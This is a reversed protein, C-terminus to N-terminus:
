YRFEVASKGAPVEVARLTYDARYIKTDKGNVQAKWGPYYNDSLFLMAPTNTQVEIHIMNPTYSTINASGSGEKQFSITPKEELLLTHRFDFDKSYLRKIMSNKDPIVEYNYFLTARGLAQTNRYLEFKDDRYILQNRQADVWVPYAWGQNTDARPHFIVSVGLLDLVRDIYKGDRPLKVLSREGKVFSGTQSSRIFEGYRDIYLPDYGEIGPIGYYVTVEGGLNGFVREVGKTEKQMASIVPIDPYVLDRPDFPMWKQAFRLSDFSATLLLFASLLFMLKKNKLSIFLFTSALLLFVSPLILNRKAIVLKDISLPHWIFLIIWTIGIIIGSIVFPILMKKVEKKEILRELVDFGFAALVAAAFSFLVIIRSLASTSVVPIKLSIIILSLPTYIALIIAVFALLAFFTVKSGRKLVAFIMLLFPIIGIFSAWEAYHGYWDNRTVANGFFDPAIATILYQPPIVETLLFIESRVSNKYFELSPLLQPLSFLIGLVVSLGLFIITQTNKVLLGRYFAYATTAVFFYLSIQFHGSFFSLPFTFSLLLLYKLKKTHVYQEIAFFSLPLFLSAYALTGYAMWVVIFGCFMFTISGILAGIASVKFSKLLMYMFIGALLPQLLVLLSWADIFPFIFFLLNFPSLVASQYNALHPNGSFSYPNWLPIQGLKYTDITFNKWPYIQGHVDPMANNKVPGWFKEYSSWPTFFNVQYTSAYPVKGQFFYPSSFIGWLFFIFLVPWFRLVFHKM